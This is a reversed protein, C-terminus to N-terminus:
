TKSGGKPRQYCDCKRGNPRFGTDSCKSCVYQPELDKETMGIERLASAREALAVQKRIMIDPLTLPAYVEAHAIEIELARCAKNANKFRESKREAKEKNNDATREAKERRLDYFRKFDSTEDLLRVAKSKAQKKNAKEAKKSEKKNIRIYKHIKDMNAVYVGKEHTNIGKKKIEILYASSLASIARLVTTYDLGLQRAIDAYNGTYKKAKEYRTCTYILSLVDVEADTLRRERGHVNFIDTWFFLESRVRMERENVEGIYTYATKEGGKREIKFTESGKAGAVTRAISSRSTGLKDALTSYGIRCENNEWVSFSYWYGRIKLTARTLAQKFFSLPREIYGSNLKERVAVDM